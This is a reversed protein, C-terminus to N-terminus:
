QAGLAKILVELKVAASIAGEDVSRRYWLQYWHRAKAPDPEADPEDVESVARPDYSRALAFAAESLGADLSLAYLKRAEVIRGKAMLKHGEGLQQAPDVDDEVQLKGPSIGAIDPTGHSQTANVQTVGFLEEGASALAATKTGPEPRGAPTPAALGTAAAVDIEGASTDAASRDTQSANASTVGFLEEGVSALTNKRAVPEARVTPAPSVAAKEEAAAAVETEVPAVDADANKGASPQASSVLAEAPAEPRAAPPAPKRDIAPFDLENDGAAMLRFAGKMGFEYHGPINCGFEFRKTKTFTWILEKTEGPLVIVANPSDYPSSNHIRTEIPTAASMEEILERRGKQMTESGVTFEHPVQETSNHLVFRVTEGARVTVSRPHFWILGMDIEVTRVTQKYRATLAAPEATPTLAISKATAEGGAITLLCAALAPRLVRTRLTMISNSLDSSPGCKTTM